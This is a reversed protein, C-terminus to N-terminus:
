VARSVNISAYIVDEPLKTPTRNEGAPKGAQQRNIVAYAALDSRQSEEATISVAHQNVSTILSPHPSPREATTPFYNDTLTYFNAPLAPISPASGKPLDPIMNCSKEQGKTQNFTLTRKWGHFRLIMLATLIVVLLALIVCFFFFPLWSVDEVDAVSPPKDEENHVNEFGENLDSVSINIIHSVKEYNYGKSVCRYLGDDHISIRKFTLYSILKDGGRKRQIIEVNETYTIPECDDTHLLKCWTVNLSEGCYRLPCQVTLPQQPVTKLTTGRRVLLAVECSPLLDKGRGYVYVFSFCSCILLFSYLRKDILSLMNM